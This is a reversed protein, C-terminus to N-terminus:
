GELLPETRERSNAVKLKAGSYRMALFHTARSSFYLVQVQVLMEVGCPKWDGELGKPIRGPMSYKIGSFHATEVPAAMSRTPLSPLRLIVGM